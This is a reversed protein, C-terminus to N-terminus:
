VFSRLAGFDELSMDLNVSAVPFFETIVADVVFFRHSCEQPTQEGDISLMSSDDTGMLKRVVPPLDAKTSDKLLDKWRM